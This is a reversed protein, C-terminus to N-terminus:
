SCLAVGSDTLSYRQGSKSCTAMGDQDFQLQVGAKSVWGVQKAPVGMVLAYPAVHKTVVSGAGILAYAGLNNGCVVTANAGISVGKGVQTTAFDKQEIFSRPELVNTFVASPGIFVDDEVEVGSYVSVNNQIKVRNGIRVNSGVFVNQGLICSDGVTATGMIHSFHWVKTKSGIQAGEDIIASSHKFYSM